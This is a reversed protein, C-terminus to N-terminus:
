AQEVKVVAARERRAAEMRVRDQISALFLPIFRADIKEGHKKEVFTALKEASVEGLAQMAKEVMEIKTM